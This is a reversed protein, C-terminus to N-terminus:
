AHKVEDVKNVRGCKWCSLWRWLVSESAFSASERVNHSTLATCRPCWNLTQTKQKTPDQAVDGVAPVFPNPNTM